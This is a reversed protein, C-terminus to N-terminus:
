SSPAPLARMAAPLWPMGAFVMLVRTHMKETCLSTMLECAGGEHLGELSVYNFSRRLSV